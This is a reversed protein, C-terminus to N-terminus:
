NRISDKCVRDRGRKILNLLIKDINVNIRSVYFIHYAGVLALLHYKPNLEPNLPNFKILLV